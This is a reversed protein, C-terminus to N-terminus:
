STATLTLFCASTSRSLSGNHGVGSTLRTRARRLGRMDAAKDEWYHFTFSNIRASFLTHIVPTLGSSVDEIRGM